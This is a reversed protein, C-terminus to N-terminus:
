HGMVRQPLELLTLLGQEAEYYAELSPTASGLILGSGTLEALKRAVARADYFVTFSGWEEADQKYTSEHEEDIIILGLRPLPAFLASRPGVVVDIEGDRIRRWVDYREGSSLESHIVTVRGPFRGAFRALTQPTLAIEPVLVIAQRNRALTEGIAYLYLETKGSGTVGHLLFRGPTLMDPGPFLAERIIQWAEAQQGTLTLPQTAPFVLGALPDRYRVRETVQVLGAQELTRLMARNGRVRQYLERKWLVGGAQALAELLAAYKDAGRLELILQRAVPPTVGLRAGTADVCIAGKRVLNKLADDSRLKCAQSLEEQPIVQDPHALLYALVQAQKTARGLELVRDPIEAPPIRLEVVEERKARVGPQEESRRLLGPPLFLKVAEAAPAVYRDAIWFALQIQTPTLVPQPRALRQIPRTEVPAREQLAVVIGQLTQKGFPVWVLHGPRLKGLLAPPIHYHFTQLSAYGGSLQHIDPTEDFGPLETPPPEQGKRFSRRIPANVIVEAYGRLDPTEDRTETSPPPPDTM